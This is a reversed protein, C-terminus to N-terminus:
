LGCTPTNGTAEQKAQWTEHQLEKYFDQKEEDTYTKNNKIEADRLKKEIDDFWRLSLAELDYESYASLMDTNQNKNRERIEQFESEIKLRELHIRRSAESYDRTKLSRIIEKSQYSEILDKPVRVRVHYTKRRLQLGAIKAM